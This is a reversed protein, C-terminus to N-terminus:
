AALVETNPLESGVRPFLLDLDDARVRRVVDEIRAEPLHLETLLRELLPALSNSSKIFADEVGLELLLELRGADNTAAIIPVNPAVKKMTEILLKLIANDELLCVVARVKGTSARGVTRPRNPDSFFVNFGRSKAYTLREIDRDHGRYPIGEDELVGAVQRAFDDFEVIIVENQKVDEDEGEEDQALHCMSRSLLCGISGIAPTLALSLGIVAICLDVLGQELVGTRQAAALLVFSFESGQSLLFGLRIASSHEMRALRLAGWNAFAKVVFFVGLILIIDQASRVIMSLDLAMGVTLFFLSLLLGRFPAVEARILYAYSSESLALGGLFAGLALSLGLSETVWSTFLVLLLSFATFVEDNKLGILLKFFPRLAIRGLGVTLVAALLMKGFPLLATGLSLSNTDSSSLFVLLAIAAMDQFVLIETARKGVPSSQEQHDALVKLVLATSSLSAIAGLVLASKLPFALAYAIGGIAATVTLAQLIGALLFGRWGSRLEQISLHVGVDFLLFCVGLEALFHLGETHNDVLGLGHSGILAGLMFFGVIPSIRLIRALFLGLVGSSLLIVAPYLPSHTLM